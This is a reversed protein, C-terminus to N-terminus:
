RSGEPPSLPSAAEDPPNLAGVLRTRAEQAVTARARAMRARAERSYAVQYGRKYAALDLDVVVAYLVPWVTAPLGHGDLAVTLQDLLRLRVRDQAKAGSARGGKRGRETLTLSSM